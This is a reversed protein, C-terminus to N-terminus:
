SRPLQHTTRPMEKKPSAYADNFSFAIRPCVRGRHRASAMNGGLVEVAGDQMRKAGAVLSLLTSKGVGDPGLLGVTCGAPVDLTIDDLAVTKGYRHRVGRLRVVPATAAPM